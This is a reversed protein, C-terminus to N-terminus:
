SISEDTKPNVKPWNKLRVGCKVSKEKAERKPLAEESYLVGKGEGKKKVRKRGGRMALRM